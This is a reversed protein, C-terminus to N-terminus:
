RIPALRIRPLQNTALTDKGLQCFPRTIGPRETKLKVGRWRDALLIPRYPRGVGAGVGRRWASVGCIAASM